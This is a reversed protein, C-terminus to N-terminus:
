KTPEHIFSNQSLPSPMKGGMARWDNLILDAAAISMKLGKSRGLLVEQAGHLVVLRYALQNAVGEWAVREREIMVIQDAYWLASYQPPQAISSASCTM